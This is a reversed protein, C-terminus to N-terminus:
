DRKRALLGLIFAVGALGMLTIGVADRQQAGQSVAAAITGGAHWVAGAVFLGVAGVVLALRNVSDRLRGITERSGATLETQFSLQGRRARMLVDEIGSPLKLLRPLTKLVKELSPQLEEGMLRAAFPSVKDMPNFAPSVVATIGSLIGLARMVFLLEAQFQFPSSYLLAKYGEYFEAYEDLDIGKMQGLFSGSFKELLEETMQEVQNLDADYLLVGSDLYSELILHADQTGVGIVYDRLAGRLRKPITVAMGFDIFAIQFPRNPHFPVAEGPLFERAAPEDPHPLPRVFLNGAHPDAHVFHTVLLQEMYLEFLKEAVRQRDIGAAELAPLDDIKLYGVDEMTLTHAAVYEWYIKPVYVQADRSFDAAFRQANLAEASLDLERSTVATFEHALRNLDAYRRIPRYYNLRRLFRRIIKLDTEVLVLINPRLVKVAVQEGSVLRAKHVQALSASGIAETSFWAFLEEVPQGFDAAIQAVVERVPVPPVEDQLGALEGTIEPPLIDARTSLFQGLKILVGGMEVALARFEGALRQWRPLHPTRFRRLGPRNLLIDWWAIHLAARVFFNRVRRYRKSDIRSDGAPPRLDHTTAAPRAYPTSRLPSPDVDTTHV